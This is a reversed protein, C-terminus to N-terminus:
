ALREPHLTEPNVKVDSWDFDAIEDEPRLGDHASMEVLTMFDKIADEENAAQVYAGVNYQVRGSVLYTNSM